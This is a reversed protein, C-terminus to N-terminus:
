RKQESISALHVVDFTFILGTLHLGYSFYMAGEETLSSFLSLDDKGAEGAPTLPRRAALHHKAGRRQLYIDIVRIHYTSCALGTLSTNNNTQNGWPQVKSM